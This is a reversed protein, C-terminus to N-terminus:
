LNLMVGCRVRRQLSIEGFDQNACQVNLIILKRLSPIAVLAFSLHYAYLPCHNSSIVQNGILRIIGEMRINGELIIGRGEVISSVSTALSPEETHPEV